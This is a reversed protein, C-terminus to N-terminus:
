RLLFVVVSFLINNSIPIVFVISSIFLVVGTWWIIVKCGPKSPVFATIVSTLFGTMPYTGALIGAVITRVKRTKVIENALFPLPVTMFLTQTFVLFILIVFCVRRRTESMKTDPLLKTQRSPESLIEDGM